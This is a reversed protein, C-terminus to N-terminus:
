YIISIELIQTIWSSCFSKSKKVNEHPTQRLEKMCMIIESVFHIAYKGFVNAYSYQNRLFMYTYRWLRNFM